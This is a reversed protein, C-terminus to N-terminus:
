VAKFFGAQQFRTVLSVFFYVLCVGFMGNKGINLVDKLFIDPNVLNNFLYNGAKAINLFHVDGAVEGVSFVAGDDFQNNYGLL